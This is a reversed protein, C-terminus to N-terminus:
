RAKKDQFTIILGVTILLTSFECLILKDLQIKRQIGDSSLLFNFECTNEKLVLGEREVREISVGSRAVTQGRKNLRSVIMPPFLNLWVMIVIGIWMVALQKKNM